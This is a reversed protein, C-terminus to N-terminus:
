VQSITKSNAWALLLSELQMQPNLQTGITRNAEYVRDLMGYLVRFDLVQAMLQLRQIQDPNYLAPPKAEIKLRLMDILWGTLWTLVLSLDLKEWRGAIAVPDQEGKLALYFDDVMQARKQLTDSAALDKAMLPAGGGVALLLESDQGIQGTLWEIAQQRPPIPFTVRQCRSRITAPLRGPRSTVLIMITWPVPEELTKLLSNASAINMADAPEIVTVKYGGAQATLSSKDVFARITDIKIAKGAEEPEIHIYDPHNGVQFLHCGRCQGCPLGGADAVECFLSHALASAFIGKGLGMAGTLLLAHPLRDSNRAVQLRDWTDQHWPLLQQNTVATM